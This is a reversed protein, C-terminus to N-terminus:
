LPRRLYQDLQAFRAAETPDQQRRRVAERVLVYFSVLLFALMGVLAAILLRKPGSKREPVVAKDVVQVVVADKAEDIRAAELQRSLFDYLSEHYRLERAAQLYEISAGSLRGTPVQLNGESSVPGGSQMQAIKSLQSRLEALERETRIVDPNSATAYSRMSQLQVEKAAIQARVDAVAGILARTQADPQILGTKQEIQKLTLEAHSLDDREAALKQEFFARRQAAETLALSQNLHRLEDIWANAMDAARGPDHDTVAISILGEKEPDIESNKELKKRADQYRKVYYVKRLDFRNVLADEVTRSKLMAVFVDAPNKLGLDRLDLTQAGALQGLMSSLVSQSQQPPLITATATYSKPVIFVVIAALLAAGLTIQLILKKERALVLLIELLDIRDATSADIAM